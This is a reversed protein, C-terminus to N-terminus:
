EWEGALEVELELCIGFKQFVTAQALDILARVDAARTQGHNIFFNAHLASIEANGIRTGKLGAAEILRGAHDGPPNKFMSGMSAGPPQAAKRRASFQDITAQIEQAPRNQLRFEAALIIAQAEGRKLVSSRYDYGFKEVPWWAREARALVEARLLDHAIDGGFAGANGYVAGGVTGPVTAAWELGSFNQAAARHALNSFIVGAEARVTPREGPLFEVAKARNLIVLGRIGKDSVLLNSGGGLLTFALGERWCIQIARALEDASNVTVLWDAPGGIRASTYPALNVQEQASAFLSRPDTM